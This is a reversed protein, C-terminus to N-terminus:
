RIDICFQMTNGVSDETTSLRGTWDLPGQGETQSSETGDGLLCVSEDSGSRHIWQNGEEDMIAEGNIM